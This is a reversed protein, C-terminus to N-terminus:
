SDRGWQFTDISFGAIQLVRSVVTDILADMDGPQSYFSPIAPAIIGGAETVSVMNRLHILNFPTERPVLVLKKREKLMVDAARTILDNSFGTAIRSLLGMSCPCIIMGDYQASGSAFPANFDNKDYFTFPYHGITLEGLELRWNEKANESMVIGVELGENEVFPVLRDMLVRAYIAGSSGGVGIAIKRVSM